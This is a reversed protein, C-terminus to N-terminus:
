NQVSKESAPLKSLIRDGEHLFSLLYQLFEIDRWKGQNSAPGRRGFENSLTRPYYPCKNRARHPTIGGPVRGARSQRAVKWFAIPPREKQAGKEQTGRSDGPRQNNPSSGAAAASGGLVSIQDHEKKRKVPMIACPVKMAGERTLTPTSQTM